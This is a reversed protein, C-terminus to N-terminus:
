KLIDHKHLPYHSLSYIYIFASLFFIINKMNEERRSERKMPVRAPSVIGTNRINESKKGKKKLRESELQKNAAKMTTKSPEM